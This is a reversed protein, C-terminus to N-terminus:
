FDEASLLAIAVRILENRSFRGKGQSELRSRITDLQKLNSPTLKIRVDIEKVTAEDAPRRGTLLKALPGSGARKQGTGDFVDRGLSKRRKPQM